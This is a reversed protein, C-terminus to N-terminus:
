KIKLNPLTINVCLKKQNFCVLEQIVDQNNTNKIADIIKIVFNVKRYNSGISNILNM